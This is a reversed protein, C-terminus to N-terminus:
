DESSVPFISGKKMLRHRPIRNFMPIDNWGAINGLLRGFVEQPSRHKLYKQPGFVEEGPTQFGLTVKGSPINKQKM